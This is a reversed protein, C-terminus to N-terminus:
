TQGRVGEALRKIRSGGEGQLWELLPIQRKYQTKWREGPDAAETTYCMFYLAIRSVAAPLIERERETLEGYGALFKEDFVEAQEPLLAYISWLAYAVDYIRIGAQVYDFDMVGIVQDDMRSYLQNWLHWDGHIITHPLSSDAQDWQSLIGESLREMHDLEHAPIMAMRRLNELAHRYYDNSQYFSHAPKSQFLHGQQRDHYRRLMEGSSLVQRERCRFRDGIMYSTVQILTGEHMMYCSGNDLTLPVPVPIASEHLRTLMPQLEKLQAESGAANLLRIVYRGLDTKIKVTVNYYGGLRGGVALLHGLKYRNCIPEIYPMYLHEDRHVGATTM